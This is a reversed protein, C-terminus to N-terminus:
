RRDESPMEMTAAPAVVKGKRGNTGNGHHGNTGNQGNRNRGAGNVRHNGNQQHPVAALVPIKLETLVESPTRFSQDMYDLTFVLGVSIVGAMLCGLLGFIWPSQTPLTPVVPEQAVAVNLIRTQDLADAIRSEERKKMYLLYNEESAKQARVLDQQLISDKDLERANAAYLNVIAQTATARAQLSSLDAKAKALESNIWAYTPNQDTTEEHLPKSEEKALAARTDALEKDVEKVLPYTPQYKTLLETRKLELTILTSKLTQLVQADDLNRLQTTMRTPTTGAQKELAQIRKETELTLARTTELTGNFENLKQLTLDRMLAPAVGGRQASFHKLQDEASELTKKYQETEQQFFEYQGTPREVAVHKQIYVQDVTKLVKTALQPDKNSYSLQIVNTKKIPEVQLEAKLKRAAKAIRAEPSDRRGVLSLFSKQRHLGCAVVVKRLVDDSHILEVESNLEEETVTDRFLIPVAQGATVVADARERKILLKTEALYKSPLLLASLIVGLFIGSFCLTMVRKHRFAIAVVDRLTYSFHRHGDGGFLQESV